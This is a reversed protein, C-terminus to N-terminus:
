RILMHRLLPEKRPNHIYHCPFLTPFYNSGAVGCPGCGKGRERRETQDPPGSKTSGQKANLYKEVM